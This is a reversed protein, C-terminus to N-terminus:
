LIGAWDIVSNFYNIREDIEELTDFHGCSENKAYHYVINGEIKHYWRILTYNKGNNEIEYSLKYKHTNM